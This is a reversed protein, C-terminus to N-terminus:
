IIEDEDFLPDDQMHRALMTAPDAAMDDGPLVALHFLADGQNVAPMNSRGIILGGVTAKVETEVTGFPDSIAGLTEGEQVSDGTTRWTRLIGGEPARVWTSRQVIPSPATAASIARAPLGGLHRLIRLIGKMGIRVGLEDFRLAEGAEYVLVPVDLADAAKRLSGDRQRSPVIVPAGFAQALELSRPDGPNVRIQPLNTRHQGASHLDIGYDCRRVVDQLFRDALQSALSGAASGPFCRNLDRRDPLYRSRDIFGFANVIPALLLTGALRKLAKSQALRRVIEIGVIEDGHIAASVFVVPGDKRGHIVQVPLTVPMHNSMLSIPLDAVASAGPAITVDGLTFSERRKVM